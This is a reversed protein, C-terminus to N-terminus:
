SFQRKSNEIDVQRIIAAPVKTLKSLQQLERGTPSFKLPDIWVNDIPVSIALPKGNRDTIMGRYAPISITRLSRSDGQSLLFGREFVMLDVMRWIVGLMAIILVAVIFWFRWPHKM